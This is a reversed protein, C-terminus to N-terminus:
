TITDPLEGGEVQPRGAQRDAFPHVARGLRRVHQRGVPFQSPGADHQGIPFGDRGEPGISVPTGAVVM